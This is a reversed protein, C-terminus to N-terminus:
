RAQRRRSRAARSRGGGAPERDKDQHGRKQEKDWARRAFTRAAEFGAGAAMALAFAAAQQASELFAYAEDGRAVLPRLSRGDAIALERETDFIEAREASWEGAGFLVVDARGLRDLAAELVPGRTESVGSADVGLGDLLTREAEGGLGAAEIQGGLAALARVEGADRGFDAVVLVVSRPIRKRWERETM